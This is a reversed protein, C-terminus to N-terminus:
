ILRERALNEGIPMAEMIAPLSISTSSKTDRMSSMPKYKAVTISPRKMWPQRM